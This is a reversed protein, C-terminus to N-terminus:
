GTQNGHQKGGQTREQIREIENEMALVLDKCFRTGGYGRAIATGEGLCQKWQRESMSELKGYKLFFRWCETLVAYYEKHQQETM